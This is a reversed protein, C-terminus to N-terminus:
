FTLFSNRLVAGFQDIKNSAFSNIFEYLFFPIDSNVLQLYFM